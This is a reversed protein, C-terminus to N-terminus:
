NLGLLSYDKCFLSSQPSSPYYIIAVRLSRNFFISEVVGPKLSPLQDSIRGSMSGFASGSIIPVMVSILLTWDPLM